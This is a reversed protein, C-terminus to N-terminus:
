RVFTESRQNCSGYQINTGVLRVCLDSEIGELPCGGVKANRVVEAVVERLKEYQGKDLRCDCLSVEVIRDRNRWGGALVFRRYGNIAAVDGHTGGGGGVEVMRIGTPSREAAMLQLM